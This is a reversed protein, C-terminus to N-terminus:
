CSSRTRRAVGWACSGNMRVCAGEGVRVRTSSCVCACVRESACFVRVVYREVEERVTAGEDIGDVLLVLMRLELAMELMSAYKPEHARFYQKVVTLDGAAPAVLQRRLLPAMRQVLIVVPILAPNPDLDRGGTAGAVDRQEAGVVETGPTADMSDPKTTAVAATRGCLKSWLTPFRQM